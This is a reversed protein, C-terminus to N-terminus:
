PHIPAKPQQFVKSLALYLVGAILWGPIALFYIQWGAFHNLLGCVLLTGVWALGAALNFPRGTKEAYDSRLGCRELVWYDVFIVAGMPMLITGYLGVFALLKMVLAPFVAGVTALSGAVLTLGFRSSNPLLGQFALGARYLTPNATTWGAMIVCLLGALGAAQYAMPGPAVTTDAPNRALQLAYLLSACIWAMYHGVAMGVGSAAGYQWKRAYRFITMDVMGLHTAANCTWAFFVVHWFTFKTQGPFPDGGKWIREQAASWFDGPSHIGLQPLTVVGCALFVLVMWPVALEAVKAMADYGKAAIVAFCAGIAMVCVVWATSNPLWDALEPMKLHFPVGVATASVSVMAGALICFLLGNALNYLLVLRTGCIKELKTYLTLRTRVAIPACILTWSATALLNGLLLGVLLDFASVGAALFLPGILFETGAVHEGAYLNVFTKLGKLARAPVPEREFEEVPGGTATSAPEPALPNPGTPHGTPITSM